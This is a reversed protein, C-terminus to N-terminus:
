RLMFPITVKKQGKGKAINIVVEWEGLMDLNLTAEYVDGAPKATTEYYMMPSKGPLSPMLYEVKVTAGKVPRSASDTILIKAKNEGQVPPNEAFTMVVKYGDTEASLEYGGASCVAAVAMFVMISLLLRKM